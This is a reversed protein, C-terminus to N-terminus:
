PCSMPLCPEIVQKTAIVFFDETVIFPRVEISLLRSPLPTPNFQTYSIPKISVICIVTPNTLKALLCVKCTLIMLSKDLLKTM